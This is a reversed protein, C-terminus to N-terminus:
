VDLARLADLQELLDRLTIQLTSRENDGIAGSASLTLRLVEVCNSLSLALSSDVPLLADNGAKRAEVRLAHNEIINM